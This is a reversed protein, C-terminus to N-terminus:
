QLIMWFFASFGYWSAYIFAAKAFTNTVLSFM